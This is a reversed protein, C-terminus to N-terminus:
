AQELILVWDNGYVPEGPPHFEKVNKNDFVGIKTRKGDAPHYWSARVKTGSIRGMNVSINRGNCTYLFAYDLGRTAAIYDYRIGQDAVLSSDPVRAAYPKSLILAKLYQMQAAGPAHLATTWYEKPSFSPHKEEPNYFQMVANDGYTFGCGGAFVSWYGYRRLDQATWYPQTSDHLGHPIGEYIPEADIVPKTPQRTYDSQVYKWNDEGYHLDEASTDQAYDRHGSQECNFDLWSDDHFWMSSQGRGRPHFTVLHNTDDAKLTSGIARWVDISDSGKIDGGDMWIVNPKDKYRKALFTAYEKAQATTVGGDKVNTGWVPVLAIYMNKQAALQLVYDVHDWYDYQSTDGFAEGPTTKPTAVNRNLLASAGYVNKAGLSHLMMCQIVNYGKQRRDELYQAAQERTLKSFLLWGTDGLWFFPKGDETIFYHHDASVRLRSMQKQANAALCLGAFLILITLRKAPMMTM